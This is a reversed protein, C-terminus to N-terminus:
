AVEVKFDEHCNHCGEGGPNITDCEQCQVWTLMHEVPEDGDWWVVYFYEKDQAIVGYGLIAAEVRAPGLKPYDM